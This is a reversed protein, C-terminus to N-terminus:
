RFGCIFVSQLASISRQHAGLRPCPHEAAFSRLSRLLRARNLCTAHLVVPSGQQSGIASTTQEHVRFPAHEDNAM